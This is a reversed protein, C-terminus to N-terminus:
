PVWEAVAFAMQWWNDKWLANITARYSSVCLEVEKEPVERHM